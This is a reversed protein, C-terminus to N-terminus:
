VAAPGRLAVTNLKRELPEFGLAALRALADDITRGLVEHLEMVLWPVRAALVDGENALLDHEAGEIDCIVAARAWGQEDLLTALGVTPVTLVDDDATENIAYVSSGMLSQATRRLETTPGGYALAGGRVTFAAGESDRLREIEAVLRTDAEVVVHAHPDTRGANVRCAVVGLCGGLEVVPLDPPLWTASLTIEPEEYSAGLLWWYGVQTPTLHPHHPDIPVGSLRPYWRIARALHGLAATFHPGGTHVLAYRLAYGLGRERALGRVTQWRRRWAM